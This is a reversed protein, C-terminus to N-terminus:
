YRRTVSLTLMTYALPATQYRIRQAIPLHGTQPPTAPKRYGASHLFDQMYTACGRTAYPSRQEKLTAVKHGTTAAPDTLPTAKLVAALNRTDM